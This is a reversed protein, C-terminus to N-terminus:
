SPQGIHTLVRKLSVMAQECDRQSVIHNLVGNARGYEEFKEITNVSAAHLEALTDHADLLSLARYPDTMSLVAACDRMIYLVDVPVTPTNM